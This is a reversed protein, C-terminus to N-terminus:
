APRPGAPAAAAALAGRRLLRSLPVGPIVDFLGFLRHVKYWPYGALWEDAGEGTLAVKYGHEHVSRALLLLAACSTDIVPAEAARILEAYTGFLEADGCPVIVPNAGIHRAVVAAQDTEVLHPALIKITFTPIPRGLVKSAMAAVISSDIGGSLYSVVPVDARLRREVAGKLVKEFRDVLATEDGGPDEQGQDPFSMEWYIRKEPPV